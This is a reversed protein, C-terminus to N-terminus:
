PDIVEQGVLQDSLFNHLLNNIVRSPRYYWKLIGHQWNTKILLEVCAWLEDDKVMAGLTKCLSLRM